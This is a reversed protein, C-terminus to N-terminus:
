CFPGADSYTRKFTNHTPIQGPRFDSQRNSSGVLWVGGAEGLLSRALARSSQRLSCASRIPSRYTTAFWVQLVPTSLHGFDCSLSNPFGETDEGTLLVSRATGL